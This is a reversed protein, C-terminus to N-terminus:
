ERELVIGCGTLQEMVPLYPELDLNASAAKQGDFAGLTSLNIFVIRKVCNVPVIDQVVIRGARSRDFDAVLHELVRAIGTSVIGAVGTNLDERVHRMGPWREQELFAFLRDAIMQLLLLPDTMPVAEAFVSSSLNGKVIWVGAM